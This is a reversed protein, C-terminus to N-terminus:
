LCGCVQNEHRRNGNFFGSIFAASGVGVRQLSDIAVVKMASDLSSDCCYNYKTSCPSRCIPNTSTQGSLVSRCFEYETHMLGIKFSSLIEVPGVLETMPASQLM